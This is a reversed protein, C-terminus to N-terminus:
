IYFLYFIGVAIVLFVITMGGGAKFYDANRYGGPTILMANVQHTPLMFSNACCVAILLVLPRPDLGSMRAMSIILPALVVMAAVNSMFLSLLTSLLAVIALIILTHGNTVVRMVNGALFAAAGSKQMALGLPILGAILFVVKWEIARYAEEISLVRALVMAIAGSLMSISLPFGIVALAVAGFFCPMAILAKSLDKEETDLQTILMFDSNQKLDFIKDWLGHVILIDGAQMERDSFDGRIEVGGSFLMIPEIEHHKRMAYQRITQGILSSRPPIIVEAFGAKAPDDLDEFKELRERLELGNHIAFREINDGDGLLAIERRAEFTTERWPAYSVTSDKSIALVNLLYKHWIGCNEPTMGSLPSGEPIFYRYIKYPLRWTDILRRQTSVADGTGEGSPLVARGFLFFYLIGAMLLALGVPTVDFLRYGDLEAASLIDNLIILPGSAVMTLTGGLIAAFGMPMILQSPSLQEKKSLAMVAPLFLAAAGVNQMFASLLGASISVLLILRRKSKGAISILHESLKDMIGTRAIGRGMIMVAMMALVANSSFGSIAEHPTLIGTWGLTLMCLIAIIDARLLDFILFLATVSLVSLVIFIDANMNLIKNGTGYEISDSIKDPTM